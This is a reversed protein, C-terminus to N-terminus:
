CHATFGEPVVHIHGPEWAFELMALVASRLVKVNPHTLRPREQYALAALISCGVDLALLTFTADLEAM